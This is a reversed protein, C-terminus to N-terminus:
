LFISGSTFKALLWNSIQFVSLHKLGVQLKDFQAEPPELLAYLCFPSQFMWCICGPLYPVLQSGRSLSRWPRCSVWLANHRCHSMFFVAREKHLPDRVVSFVLLSLVVLKKQFCATVVASRKFSLCRNESGHPTKWHYSWSSYVGSRWSLSQLFTPM